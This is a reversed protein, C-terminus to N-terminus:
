GCEAQFFEPGEKEGVALEETKLGSGFNRARVEGNAELAGSIGFGEGNRASGFNALANADDGATCAAVEFFSGVFAHVGEDGAFTGVPGVCHGFFEADIEEVAAMVGGLSKANLGECRM